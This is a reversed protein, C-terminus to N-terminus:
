ASQNNKFIEQKHKLTWWLLADINKIREESISDTEGIKLDFNVNLPELPYKYVLFL